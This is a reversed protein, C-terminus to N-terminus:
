LKKNGYQTSLFTCLVEQVTVGVLLEFTNQGEGEAMWVQAYLRSNITSTSLITPSSSFGKAVIGLFECSATTEHRLRWQTL